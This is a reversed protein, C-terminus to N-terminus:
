QGEVTWTNQRNNLSDTLKLKKKKFHLNQMDEFKVKADCGEHKTPLKVLDCVLRDLDITDGTASHHSTVHAPM